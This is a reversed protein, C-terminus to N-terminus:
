VLVNCGRTESFDLRGLVEFSGDAYAIGLDETEIFSCSFVNALDIICIRGRKELLDASFPNDEEKIVVKMWPPCFFRGNGQSYAQSMLETMGYESHIKEVGLRSSLMSHLEERIIEKRRGKMGGTEMIVLENPPLTYKECFDLLAHSVGLLVSKKGQEAKKLLLHYLAEHNNLFFGSDKDRSQTILDNVMYILSSGEREMYGPLLALFCLDGPDGYFQRFSERYSAEYIKLSKVHHISQGKGTTSSSLFKKEPEEKFCTIRHNKFFSVPLYPFSGPNKMDLGALRQFLQYPANSDSQFRYINRATEDFNTYNTNKIISLAKNLDM